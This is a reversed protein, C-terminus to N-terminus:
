GAGGAPGELVPTSASNVVSMFESLAGPLASGAPTSVLLVLAILAFVVAGGAVRARACIMSALVAFFILAGVSGM